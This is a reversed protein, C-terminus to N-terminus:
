KIKSKKNKILKISILVILLAVYIGSTIGSFAYLYEVIFDYGLNSLILNLIVVSLCVFVSREKSLIQSANFSCIILTSFLAFVITAFYVYHFSISVNKSLEFMPMQTSFNNNALVLINLLIVVCITVVAVVRGRSKLPSQVLVPLAAVFNNVGFLLAYWIAMVVGSKVIPFNLNIPTLNKLSNIVIVVLMIPVIIDAVIRIKNIGGLLIFFTLLSLIQPVLILNKGTLIQFLYNAGALMGASTIIFNILMVVNTIKCFKGFLKANFESYSKIELKRNIHQVILFLYVYLLGFLMLGVFSMEGFRFFFFYVEKGSAFGVGIVASLILFYDVVTSWIKNGSRM